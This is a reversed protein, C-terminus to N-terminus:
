GGFFNGFFNGFPSSGSNPSGYNGSPGSPLSPGSSGSSGSSGNGSYSPGTTNPTKEEGIKTTITMKTTGRYITLTVKQGLKMNFLTTRLAATDQITKGDMAVIIDGAKLGAAKANASIVKQVLVGYNVPINSGYGPPINAVDYADIGISPHVAYGHTMLQSAIDQVENAPIAFGMGNFGTAVIKSSNIGIMQGEINLLPGGSNGPNIAADTQIVPQSDLVQQNTPEEVPMMRQDGSVIGSTVSDAFNLGMPNGIAIAPEGVQINNSNAFQIPTVSAFNSVPVELVALDTFPDTGVVKASVHKGSQLVLVAKTGGQVVHNNTVIYANNGKHYFYVGSGIDSAQTQQQSTFFNSTTTYNVVAVVDPEVKKVVQTIGDSINVNVASTPAASNSSSSQGVAFSNNNSLQNTMNRVIVPTVALTAGAGVLGSLVMAGVWRWATSSQEQRRPRGSQYFGM